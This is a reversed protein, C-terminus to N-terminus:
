CKQVVNKFIVVKKVMKETMVKRKKHLEMMHKVALHDKDEM